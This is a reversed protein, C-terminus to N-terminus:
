RWEGQLVVGSWYYPHSWRRGSRLAGADMFGRTRGVRGEARIEKGLAPQCASLV